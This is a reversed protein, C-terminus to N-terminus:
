SSTKLLSAIQQTTPVQGNPTLKDVVGPLVKSLQALLEDESMGTQQAIESIAKKGLAVGLENPAIPKNEGPKVWSDATEGHGANTLSELLGGLGGLLGGGAANGNDATQPNAPTPAPQSSGGSFMKGVLVAGLAILLPKSINGGPVANDFIGM